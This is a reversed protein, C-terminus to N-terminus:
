DNLFANSKLFVGITIIPTKQKWYQELTESM